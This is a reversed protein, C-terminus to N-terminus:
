LTFTQRPVWGKIEALTEIGKRTDDFFLELFVLKGGLEEDEEVFSVISHLEAIPIPRAKPNQRFSQPSPGKSTGFGAVFGLRFQVEFSFSELHEETPNIEFVSAVRSTDFRNFDYPTRNSQCGLQKLKIVQSFILFRDLFQTFLDKNELLLKIPELSLEEAFLSFLELMGIEKSIRFRSLGFGGGFFVWRLLFVRLRLFSYAPYSAYCEHRLGAM